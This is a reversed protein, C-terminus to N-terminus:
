LFGWRLNWLVVSNDPGEKQIEIKFSKFVWIRQLENPKLANQM